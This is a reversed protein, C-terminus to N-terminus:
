GLDFLRLQPGYIIIAVAVGWLAVCMLLPRDNLLMDSPSGGGEKKHVLYLYRFIGYLPFVLTLGLYDTHFKQVTEPSVTYIVYSILTSATVVAIMQDLLYPSYHELIPRHGTAGDALLVLEHRRKSLALFLALLITLILLWHSMAVDIAVAGAAARLVFGIAITLVDIIVIHKLPGSYLALLSVYALSVVFFPRNITWAFGLAAALLVIATAIALNVPVTGSAIPRNRKLPHLRDAERDAVDNVLYVVGSLACFVAFALVSRRISSPDLLRQGFLLGFFVFLNKTWQSPRVSRVLGLLLSQAPVGVRERRADTRQATGSITHQAM